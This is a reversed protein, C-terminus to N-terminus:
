CAREYYKRAQDFDNKVHHVRGLLLLSEAQIEQVATTAYAGKALAVVRDYDKKWLKLGDESPMSWVDQLTFQTKGDPTDSSSVVHTTFKTGIRIHEGADM